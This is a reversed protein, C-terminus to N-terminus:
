SFITLLEKGVATLLDKVTDNQLLDYYWENMYDHEVITTSLWQILEYLAGPM